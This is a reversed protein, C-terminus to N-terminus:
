ASVAEAFGMRRSIEMAASKLARAVPGNWTIDIEDASGLVTLVGALADGHEFVPAGFSNIGALLAGKVRSLGRRRVDALLNEAAEFDRPTDPRGGKEYLKLEAAIVPKVQDRPLFAGFVLGTASALLPLSFGVRVNVAVPRPPELMKIITAGNNGWISLLLTERFRDLLGEMVPMAQEVLDLQALASLGIELAAPGLRYHGNGTTREVVGSTVLSVLYRHAKSPHMAAAAALDKLSVPGHNRALVRLLQMGQEVSKVRGRSEGAGDGNPMAGRMDVVTDMLTSLM